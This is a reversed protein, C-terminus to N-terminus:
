MVCGAVIGGPRMKPWYANLDETVGCYDHRADIYIFDLSQDPVHPAAEVSSMRLFTTKDQFKKLTNQAAEFLQNQAEDDANAFDHYNEQHKWLDILYFKTCSPWRSLTWDSMGGAQVGVEAGTQLGRSELLGGIQDRSELPPLGAKRYIIGQECVIKSEIKAQRLVSPTQEGHGRMLHTIMFFAVLLTM